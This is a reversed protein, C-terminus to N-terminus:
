IKGAKIYELVRANISGTTRCDEVYIEAVKSLHCDAVMEETFPILVKYYRRIEMLTKVTPADKSKPFAFVATPYNASFRIISQHESLYYKGPALLQYGFSGVLYYSSSEPVVVSTVYEVSPIIPEVIPLYKESSIQLTGGSPQSIIIPSSLGISYIEEEKAFDKFSCSINSRPRLEFTSWLYINESQCCLKGNTNIAPPWLLCLREAKKLCYGFHLFTEALNESVEHCVVIAGYVTGGLAHIEEIPSVEVAPYKLLKTISSRGKAIAYYQTETYIIGDTHRKALYNDKQDSCLKFLTPFDIDKLIEYYSKISKGLDSKSSISILCSNSTLKLPFFVPTEPAFNLRNIQVTELTRRGVGNKIQLQCRAEEYKQIKEDSFSISFYFLHQSYDFLIEARSHARKKAVTIASEIESKTQLLRGLYLECDKDSNGHLHRFHPAKKRSMAAAIHVEEGCCLCEYRFPEDINNKAVEEATVACQMITDYAQLM